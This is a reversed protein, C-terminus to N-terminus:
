VPRGPNGKAGSGTAKPNVVPNSKSEFDAMVRDKLGNLNHPSGMAETRGGESEKPQMQGM